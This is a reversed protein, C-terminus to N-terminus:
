GADQEQSEKDDGSEPPNETQRAADLLETIRDGREAGADGHFVIEPVSRLRARKGLESRLFGRGHNLAELSQAQEEPTGLVSVFIKAHRLDPSVDAGTITVFGLRPDKLTRLLITGIEERLMAEIRETRRSM